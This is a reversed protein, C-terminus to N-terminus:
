SQLEKFKSELYEVTAMELFERDRASVTYPEFETTLLHVINDILQKKNSM